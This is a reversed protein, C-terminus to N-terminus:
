WFLAFLKISAVHLNVLLPSRQCEYLSQAAKCRASDKSLRSLRQRIQASLNCRVVPPWSHDETLHFLETLSKEGTDLESRLCTLLCKVSCMQKGKPGFHAPNLKLWVPESHCSFANRRSLPLTGVERATRKTPQAERGVQQIIYIIVMNTQHRPNYLQPAGQVDCFLFM